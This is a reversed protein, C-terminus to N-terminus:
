RLIVRVMLFGVGLVLTSIAGIARDVERVMGKGM